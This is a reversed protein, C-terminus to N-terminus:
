VSGQPGLALSSISRNKMLRWDSAQVVVQIGDPGPKPRTLVRLALEVSIDKSRLYQAASPTGLWDQLVLAVELQESRTRDYRPTAPERPGIDTSRRIHQVM